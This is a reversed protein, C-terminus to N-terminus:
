IDTTYGPEYATCEDHREVCCEGPLQPDLTLRSCWRLSSGTTLLTYDRNDLTTHLPNTISLHGAGHAVCSTQTQYTSLM